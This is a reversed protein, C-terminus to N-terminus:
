SQGPCWGPPESCIAATFGPAQQAMNAFYSSLVHNGGVSGTRFSLPSEGKVHLYAYTKDTRPSRYLLPPLHPVIDFENQIRVHYPVTHNYKRVFKPDGVRPAAFTYVILQKHKRNAAIDLAALTALAGGLSHGTVFLPKDNPLQDLLEHIAKRASMYIDTFGHHTQGAGSVPKYAIQEAILDSVWDVASGTGRFALIAARDSEIVFGFPEVVGNYVEASFPGVTMYARPVMFWHQPNQFQAYTQGCVAALFIATRIDMPNQEQRQEQEQQQEQGYERDQEQM